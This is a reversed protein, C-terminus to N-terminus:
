KKIAELLRYDKGIVHEPYCNLMKGNPIKTFKWNKCKTDYELSSDDWKWDFGNRIGPEPCDHGRILTITNDKYNASIKAYLANPYLYVVNPHRTIANFEKQTVYENHLIVIKKYKTLIKPNKDVDIDTIIEYGLLKLVKIANASGSYGYPYLYKIKTTLCKIDCEGRYYTYFGPEYYASSTFTPLIVASKQIPVLKKYNASQNERKEFQVDLPTPKGAEFIFDKRYAYEKFLPSPGSYQHENFSKENFDLDGSGTLSGNVIGIKIKELFEQDSISGNIWKSIHIKAWEPIEQREIQLPINNKYSIYSFVAEIESTEVVGANWWYLNEYIWFPIHTEADAAQYIFIMTFFLMMIIKM